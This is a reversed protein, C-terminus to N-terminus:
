PLILNRAGICILSGSTDYVLLSLMAINADNSIITEQVLQQLAVINSESSMTSPFLIICGLIQLKIYSEDTDNNVRTLM